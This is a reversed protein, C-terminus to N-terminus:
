ADAEGSLAKLYLARDINGGSLVIAVRKGRMGDSESMLGALAVAGAGEAMNHTDSALDRMAAMIANDSVTIIREAGRRIIALADDNPVRCAVGDAMTDASNTAIAEGAEFSLAYTAAKESVVGVIKTKFGLADRARIAGCIGSGLGIPVYFTDIDDVADFLELSYSAVGSVLDDHFSPVLHLARREAEALTFEYAAQFDHGNEILEAGLAQMAANKESSNGEPVVITASLGCHRAAFAVSQGHNGRTASIVGTVDPERERLRDMYVLGGRLKFAGIPTHNEHKVWVETGARANLLPWSHQLTPQVTQHVLAAAGRLSELVAM